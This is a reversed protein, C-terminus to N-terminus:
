VNVPVTPQTTQSTLRTKYQSSVLQQVQKIDKVGQQATSITGDAMGVADEAVGEVWGKLCPVFELISGSSSFGTLISFYNQVCKRGFLWKFKELVSIAVGQASVFLFLWELPGGEPDTWGFYTKVVQWLGGPEELEASPTPPASPPAKAYPDELLFDIRQTAAHYSIYVGFVIGVTLGGVVFYTMARTPSVKEKKCPMKFKGDDKSTCCWSCLTIFALGVGFTLCFAFAVQVDEYAIKYVQTDSDWKIGSNMALIFNAADGTLFGDLFKVSQSAMGESCYKKLTETTIVHGQGKGKERKGYLKAFLWLIASTLMATKVMFRGFWARDKAAEILASRSCDSQSRTSCDTEDSGCECLFYSSGPGGDDCTGDSSWLACGDNNQPGAWADPVWSRGCNSLHDNDVAMEIIMSSDKGDTTESCKVALMNFEGIIVCAVVVLVVWRILVCWLDVVVCAQEVRNKKKLARRSPLLQHLHKIEIAQSRRGRTSERQRTEQAWPITCAIAIWVATTVLITWSALSDVSLNSDADATPTRSNFASVDIQTRPGCDICDSGLNCISFESSSGGDDCSGDSAFNCTDACNVSSRSGCDTCDTGLTSCLAFESGIGGDDCDGDFAHVCSDDCTGVIQGVASELLVLLLAVLMM